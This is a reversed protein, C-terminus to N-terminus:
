KRIAEMFNIAWDRDATIWEGRPINVDCMHSYECMSIQYTKLLKDTFDRHSFVLNEEDSYEFVIYEDDLVMDRYEPFRKLKLLEITGDNLGAKFIRIKESSNATFRCRRLM